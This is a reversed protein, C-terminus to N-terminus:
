VATVQGSSMMNHEDEPISEDDDELILDASSESLMLDDEQSKYDAIASHLTMLRCLLYGDMQRLASMERRLLALSATMTKAQDTISSNQLTFSNVGEHENIMSMQAAYIKASEQWQCNVSNAIINLAKPAKPLGTAQLAALPSHSTM